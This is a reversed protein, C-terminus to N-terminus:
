HGGGFSCGLTAVNKAAAKTGGSVNFAIDAAIGAPGGFSLAAAILFDAASFASNLYQGSSYQYATQGASLVTGLPGAVRSINNGLAVLSHDVVGLLKGEDHIAGLAAVAQAFQSESTDTGGAYDCLLQTVTTVQTSSQARVPTNPPKPKPKPKEKDATVFVEETPTESDGVGSNLGSAARSVDFHGISELDGGSRSGTVFVEELVDAVGNCNDRCAAKPTDEVFGSPDIYSLPNNYVYGYRNFNQTNGPESITPDASLFRGTIADQVRGNMHILGMNGLMTQGTYGQRTIGAITTLDGASPAGAWTTPSRRSGYAAFSENVVLTGTSSLLASPSGQHDELTYRLTNVGASTRSYIAVPENGASIYHRWDTGASTLVTELLTGYYTTTETGSPGTYVQKWKEHRPGYSFTSSEGTANITLPYNYSTWSIGSGNRTIANGNADYTYTHSADGAQLAQHKHTTSYTWAAGAAIDSRSTINGTADYGMQLNTTGTCLGTLTSHDLRYVNDYCFSETLGLANNQRQTVNGILDYLYSQNQLATGGGVGSQISALWGTVADFSRNTVVGNGLTEQTVEGRPNTANATWFVTTGNFVKVQQLLGNQYLYQLKLRYANTSTPYTLTDIAGQVNYTYDFPLGQKTDNSLRGVSDFTYSESYVSGGTTAVSALRGINHSAASSGWTWTTTLDPETRTTPRGMADFPTFTFNQSKADSYSTIEGLANYNYTRGGLDMDSTTRQFASQGYDYTASFLANSLSDTVSLLSGFADHGFNQYYGNHDQSRGLAGTVKAIKTTVKGQPDTVTSTRGLYAFTTTQLTSNSASTPRQQQSLRNLTDYLNTVWYATCSAADCPVTSRYVHGLADFQTGVRNYGGALTKAKTVITRDFQDLYTWDDRIVAGTSDKQTAIVVMKNISTVGSAPDGNQCGGAVSACANDTIVTSTGDPRTELVRRGFNDPQWSTQLTNPDAESTQFGLDYNYGRGTAQNLPNTITKPFQGATGWDTTTTRATMGIGTIADSNINGFSDFGFVETVKYSSSSPEVVQQTERCNVYDPTYGVTRTLSPVGPATNAVQVQSPLGLCWNGTDPAITRTTTSGWQSNFYPSGSDTDTTSAAVTTANGYSDFTYSTVAQTINQGNKTGGFEYAYDNHQSVYPFYRQNNATADLTTTAFASWSSSIYTTGNSQFWDNEMNAGTYPFARQYFAYRYTANRSDLTRVSYFGESGRGQVNTRAGYYWFQDSYTSGTGDSAAFQNVVYKPGIWDVEPYVAAVSAIHPTIGTVSKSYNSRAMSVYTPSYAVGYGDTISAVLDPPQLAGNHVRYTIPNPTTQSYCGLDDLGDGDADMTVYQCTSVYPISTPVLAGPSVGTSVYVGLTAGNAVVIDTRGDGDWDMAAVVTGAMPAQGPTTGGCGAVYLAGATVFDTCADNNWNTFFVPVYSSGAASVVISGTFTAGNSVLEITNLTYNPSTGSVVLLVLDDRGDGNFDYRRLKDYQFDPTLLQASAVNAYSYATTVTSSFAAAGGAGTTNLRTYIKAAYKLTTPNQVIDLDVLDPLGDGNIDALQYGYTATDYAIGTPTAVFSSGNWLYYSWNGGVVTLIGDRDGGTVNGVLVIGLLASGVAVPTGYGTVSGFSVYTTTGNQYVVDPVGDANLDYRASLRSGSSSLANTATGSVGITGNQYTISTPSLCDTGASGGCETITTLRARTTTPAAGYALTYKRVLVSSGSSASTVSVSLLLNTNVVATGSVYGVIAPDNTSPVQSVRTGYAFAVSYNYTSSGSSAPTYSISVPVGIGVSGAAGTGYTVIYNNGNRDRVKNLLWQYPTAVTSSPTIRSDTTNGYEYTLGDKGLVTFSAPGNGAAGNATVNSFNAIETQYTSGAVGYTGSTLRLRNGNLCYGDTTVLAVPAPTTDQAYTKNCRSIAQLGALNWGPGMTGDGSQSNYSLALDPQIGRPGPPVWIPIAYTAAGTPSVNFSGATRGVAAYATSGMLIAAVAAVVM